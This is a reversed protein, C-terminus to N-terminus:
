ITRLRIAVLQSKTFVGDKIYQAEAEKNKYVFITHCPTCMVDYPKNKNVFDNENRMWHVANTLDKRCYYCYIKPDTM